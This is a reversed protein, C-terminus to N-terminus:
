RMSLSEAVAGAVKQGMTQAVEASNRYHVGEWIRANSVEQIFADVSDWSRTVDADAPSSTKLMPVPESGLDIRIVNGIASAVICHACPYEPHMPTSILPNWDARRTTAENGDQDGNRIATFPRWFQYTHKADFVAALADDGAQSAAALVRSNRTLDRGPQATISRVVPFYVKPATAQWFLAAATQEDTRATSDAAGLQLIENYDDAWRKSSLEPPPGPRFQSTSELAWPDRSEAWGVAAPVITPVYIGATTVPRYDNALSPKDGSRMEAVARAANIGVEIGATLTEDNPLKAIETQYITDIAEAHDPLLAILSERSASAVAAEISAHKTASVDILPAYKKTIANAAVYVSTQVMALARYAPPPPKIADYIIDTAVINWDTVIDARATLAMSACLISISLKGLTKM